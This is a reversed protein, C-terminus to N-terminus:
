RGKRPAAEAASPRGDVEDTHGDDVVLVVPRAAADPRVRGGLALAQDPELVHRERPDDAAIRAQRPEDHSVTHARGDRQLHPDIAGRDSADFVAVLRAPFAELEVQPAERAATAADLERHPTFAGFM